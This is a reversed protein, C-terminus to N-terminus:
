DLPPAQRHQTRQEYVVGLHFLLAEQSSPAIFVLDSPEGSAKIGMPVALAPYHALAAYGATYNDISIVADLQHAKMPTQFYRKGESMLRMKLEQFAEESTTDAVIGKFVGQGYPAHLLSDRDNFRLVDVVSQVAVESGAYRKLYQPLDSKMDVDLLTGFGQTNVEPGEIEILSAGLDSLEQVARAYLSDQTFSKFYGIRKGNLDDPLSKPISLTDGPLALPDDPDNGQIANFVILADVVNKTIPGATDLSSSIPVIGSRSVRGITPKLGVVGNKGSPSLISGSTESGLTVAGYNATTAVGSGSSSGGTEFRMRGYPNLTQGGLASYGLPCGSCFYYAWESLNTKGLIVAGATKLKQTIFADPAENSALAAAGATTALGSVNINDKLLIPIGYLSYPDVEQAQRDRARAEEVAKPHLAIIANLFQEPDNEYRYIRTLYFLTLEEYTMQGSAVSRQLSPIDKELILPKLSEYRNSDFAQIEAELSGWIAERDRHQSLIRKFQMRNNKHTASKELLFKEDFAEWINPKPTEKCQVLLLGICLFGLFSGKLKKM